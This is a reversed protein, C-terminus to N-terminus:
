FFISQCEACLLLPASSTELSSGAILLSKLNIWCTTFKDSKHVKFLFSKKKLHRSSCKTSEAKAAISITYSFSLSFYLLWGAM